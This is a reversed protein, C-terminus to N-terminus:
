EDFLQMLTCDQEIEVVCIRFEFSFLDLSLGEMLHQFVDGGLTTDDCIVYVRLNHLHYTLIWVRKRKGRPSIEGRGKETQWLGRENSVGM